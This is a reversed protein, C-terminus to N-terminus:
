QTMQRLIIAHDQRPLELLSGDPPANLNDIFGIRIGLDRLIELTEPGYSNVPHSVTDPPSGLVSHLHRVNREYQDRQEAAPLSALATPHSYSHLGIMHGGASLRHLDSNTMWLSRAAREIDFSRDYQMMADVISFYNDPGLVQDRAFRFLRDNETYFSYETLYRSPDFDARRRRFETSWESLDLWLFFERYFDDINPYRTTRFYRFLEMREKAGEFVSSYVFWFATLGYAEFVPLAVDIQCKLADDLTLCRDKSRLQGATARACWESPSLFNTPGMFEILDSLEEASIAGQGRPHADSCFHHLMLGFAGMELPEGIISRQIRVSLVRGSLVLSRYRM